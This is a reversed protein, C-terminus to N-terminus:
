NWPMFFFSGRLNVVLIPNLTVRFIIVNTIGNFTLRNEFKNLASGKISYSRCIFIISVYRSWMSMKLVKHKEDLDM